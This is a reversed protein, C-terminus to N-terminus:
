PVLWLSVKCVGQIQALNVVIKEACVARARGFSRQIIQQRQSYLFPAVHFGIEPPCHSPEFSNM